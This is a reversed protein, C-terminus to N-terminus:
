SAVLRGARMVLSVRTLAEAGDLDGDIGILDAEMGAAIAGKSGLELWRAADVTASRVIDLVSMGAQAMRTVELRDIGPGPGENGLDTGYVVLGGAAVFRELNQIAVAADRHPFVSLTPVVAVNAAVMRTITEDPLVEPSMLMHALEDVGADLARDLQDLGHIHGTVRLGHRHAEDVVAHLTADDLVRGAPPNLAIKIASVGDAALDAVVSTGESASDLAVGTGPPAWGATIPYGGAVTLMPGVTLILPGDFTKERSRAALPYIDERPWALDRVTTVGGRLVDRPDAFAIHVHADIFGPLVTRGSAEIVQAGTPIEIQGSPAAAEITGGAVVIVADEVRTLDPGLYATGGTVVATRSGDM